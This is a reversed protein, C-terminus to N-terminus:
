TLQVAYVRHESLLSSVISDALDDKKVQIWTQKYYGYAYVLSDMVLDVALWILEVLNNENIPLYM